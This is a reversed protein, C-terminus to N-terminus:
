IDGFTAQVQAWAEALHDRLAEEAADPDRMLIADFIASHAEYNRRNRDPLRPMRRWQPALWTTYARQIAPLVPNRSIDFFVSHFRTDTLYFLESDNIAMRNEDLAYKLASIDDRTADRAAQRVLAAEVMIRTEFLNRVGGPQDLLHGVVGSVTDIATDFGPKRVVPRFRPRAEILGKNSLAQVAERVVTRSIDFEEMLERESPLPDGDVLRGARIRDELAQIIQDAARGSRTGTKM